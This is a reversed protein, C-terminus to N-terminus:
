RSLFLFGFRGLCVCFSALSLLVLPYRYRYLREHSGWFLHFHAVAAISLYAMALWMALDGKVMMGTHRRGPLYTEHVWLAHASYGALCLPILMGGLWATVKSVSPASELDDSIM